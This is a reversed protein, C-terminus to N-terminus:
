PALVVSIDLLGWSNSGHNSIHFYLQEGVELSVGLSLTERILASGQPTPVQREWLVEGAENALAVRFSSKDETLNFHWLRFEVDHAECVTAELPQVVTLHGCEETDIGFFLIGAEIEAGFRAPPCVEAEKRAVYFPDDAPEVAEWLSASAITAEAIPQACLGDDSGACSALTSAFVLLSGVWGARLTNLQRVRPPCLGLGCDTCPM